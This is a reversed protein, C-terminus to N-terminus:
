GSKTSVEEIESHDINLLHNANGYGIAQRDEEDIKAVQIRRLEYYQDFYPSGSGYFVRKSGFYEVTEEIFDQRYIGATDFHLNSAKKLALTADAQGLGSINFQGGNTMIIPVAPWRAALSSVQLAESLWPFGTSILVPIQYESALALLNDVREIDVRFTEEWPNLYLIRLGFSEVASRLTQAADPRWPDIRAAGVLRDNHQDINAALDRNAGDLDYSYPRLPCVLAMDIQLTDMRTLLEGVSQKTGDFSEGIYTRFDFIMGCGM